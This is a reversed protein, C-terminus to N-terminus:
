TEATFLWHDFVQLADYYIITM